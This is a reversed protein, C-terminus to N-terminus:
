REWWNIEKHQIEEERPEVIYPVGKNTFRKELHKLEAQMPMHKITEHREKEEKSIHEDVEQQVENGLQGDSSYADDELEVRM